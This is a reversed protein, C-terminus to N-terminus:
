VTDVWVVEVQIKVATFVEFRVNENHAKIIITFYVIIMLVHLVYTYM